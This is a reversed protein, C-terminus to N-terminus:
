KIVKVKVVKCSGLLNLKERVARRKAVYKESAASQHCRHIKITFSGKQKTFYPFTTPIYELSLFHNLRFSM